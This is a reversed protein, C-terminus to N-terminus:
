LEDAVVTITTPKTLEPSILKFCAILTIKPAFTPVVTVDQIILKLPMSPSAQNILINFGSENVGIRARIPSIIYIIPLDLLFFSIPVIKKPKVVSINPILVIDSATEPSLLTGAKVLMKVNKVPSVKPNKPGRRPTKAPATSVAIIWDLEADTPIKCAREVVPAIELPAAKGIM